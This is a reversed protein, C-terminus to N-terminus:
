VAPSPLDMTPIPSVPVRFGRFGIESHPACCRSVSANHSADSLLAIVSDLRGVGPPSSHLVKAAWLAAQVQLVFVTLIPCSVGVLIRGFRSSNHGVVLFSGAILMLPGALQCGRYTWVGDLVAASRIGATALCLWVVFLVWLMGVGPLFGAATRM